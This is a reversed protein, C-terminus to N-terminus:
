NINSYYSKTISVGQDLGEQITNLVSAGEAENKVPYSLTNKLITKDDWRIKKVGKLHVTLRKM